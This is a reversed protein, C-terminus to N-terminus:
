EGGLRRALAQAEPTSVLVRRLVRHNRVAISLGPQGRRVVFVQDLRLTRAVYYVWPVRLGAKLGTGMTERIPNEVVRVEGVDARAIRVNGMLGAIKQWWALRVEVGSESVEVRV